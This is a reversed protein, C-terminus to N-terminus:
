MSQQITGNRSFPPDPSAGNDRFPNVTVTASDDTEASRGMKAHLTYYLTCCCKTPMPSLSIDVGAFTGSRREVARVM